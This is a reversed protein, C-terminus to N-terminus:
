GKWEGRFYDLTDPLENGWAYEAQELGGRCAKEWEAETPLRYAAGDLKSRWQCYVAAAFWQIGVVPQHPDMFCPDNWGSPEAHGTEALFEAYERRPVATGEIAFVDVWVRHRPSEWRYRNESGMWFWGEPIVVM